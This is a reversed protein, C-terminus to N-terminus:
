KSIVLKKTTIGKENEISIFYVGNSLTELNINVENNKTSM